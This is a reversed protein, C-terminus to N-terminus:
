VLHLWEERASLQGVGEFSVLYTRYIIGSPDQEHYIRSAITGALGRMDSPAHETEPPIYVRQGIHFRELASPQFRQRISIEELDREVKTMFAQFPGPTEQPPTGLFDEATITPTVQRRLNLFEEV